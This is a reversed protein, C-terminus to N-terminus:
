RWCRELFAQYAPLFIELHTTGFLHDAGEFTLMDACPISNATHQAQTYSIVTDTDAHAVLTPCTIRELPLDPMVAAQELDNIIGDLRLSPPFMSALVAQLLAKKRPDRATYQGLRGRDLLKFVPTFMIIWFLFDSNKFIAMMRRMYTPFTSTKQSVASMMLLGRCRAPHRLAFQLASPGGGSMGVVVAQDIGLADLLEVQLDAQQEFTIGSSVPTRLYGPRSVSIFRYGWEPFSFAVGLDYAGGGGHLLLVAPGEGLSAYELPGQPLQIVQSGAELRALHDARQQRFRMYTWGLGLGASVALLTTLKRM